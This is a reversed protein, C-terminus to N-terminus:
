QTRIESIDRKEKEKQQQKQKQEGREEKGGKGRGEGGTKEKRQQTTNGAVLRAHVHTLATHRTRAQTRACTRTRRTHARKFGILAVFLAM